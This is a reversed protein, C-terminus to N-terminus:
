SVRGRFLHCGHGGHQLPIQIIPEREISLQVEFNVYGHAFDHYEKCGIHLM